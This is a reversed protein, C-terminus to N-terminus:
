FQDVKLDDDALVAADFCHDAGTTELDYFIFAM